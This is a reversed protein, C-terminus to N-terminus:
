DLMIDINQQLLSELGADPVFAALTSEYDEHLWDTNKLDYQRKMYENTIICAAKEKKTPTTVKFGFGEILRCGKM